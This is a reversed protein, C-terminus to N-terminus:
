EDKSFLFCLAQVSSFQLPRHVSLGSTALEIDLWIIPPSRSIALPVPVHRTIKM